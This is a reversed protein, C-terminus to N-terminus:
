EITVMQLRDDKLCQAWEIKSCGEEREMAVLGVIKWRDSGTRQVRRLVLHHFCSPVFLLRDGEGVEGTKLYGMGEAMADHTYVMTTGEARLQELGSDLFTTVIGFMMIMMWKEAKELESSSNPSTAKVIAGLLKIVSRRAMRPLAIIKKFAGQWPSSELLHLDDSRLIGKIARSQGVIQITRGSDILNFMDPTQDRKARTAFDYAPKSVERSWSPVWSPMDEDSDESCAAADLFCLNGTERALHGALAIFFEVRGPGGRAVADNVRKYGIRCLRALVAYLRDRDDRCKFQGATGLLIHRLRKPFPLEHFGPEGCLSPFFLGLFIHFVEAIPGGRSGLFSYRFDKITVLIRNGPRFDQRLEPHRSPMSHWASALNDLDCTDHGCQIRVRGTSLAVEQIVWLREWWGRRALSLFGERSERFRREEDRGFYWGFMNRWGSQAWVYYFAAGSKTGISATMRGARTSRQIQVTKEEENKQDICLADIWLSRPYKEKRLHRLALALNTTVRLEAFELPLRPIRPGLILDYVSLSAMREVMGVALISLLCLVATPEICCMAGIAVKQPIFLPAESPPEMDLSLLSWSLSAASCWYSVRLPAALMKAESQLAPLPKKLVWIASLLRPRTTQSGSDMTAVSIPKTDSEDGWQYSVAEYSTIVSTSRTELVCQIEDSFKGPLLYVVRYESASIPQYLLPERPDDQVPNHPPM